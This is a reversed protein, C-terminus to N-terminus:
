YHEAATRLSEQIAQLRSLTGDLTARMEGVTHELSDVKSVLARVEYDNAKRALDNKVHSIESELQGVQSTPYAPPYM